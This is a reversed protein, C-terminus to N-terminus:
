LDRSILVPESVGFLDDFFLVLGPVTSLFSVAVPSSCPLSDMRLLDYSILM